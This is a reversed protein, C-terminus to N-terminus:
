ASTTEIQEAERKRLTIFSDGVRIEMPDGLTAVRVVEVEANPVFGMDMLRQRVAGGARHRRIRCRCGKGVASLPKFECCAPCGGHSSPSDAPSHENGHRNRLRNKNMFM